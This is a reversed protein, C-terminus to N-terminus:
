GEDVTIDLEVPPYEATKSKDDPVYQPIRPGVHVQDIDLWCGLGAADVGGGSVLAPAWGSDLLRSKPRVWYWGNEM